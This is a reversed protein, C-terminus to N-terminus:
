VMQGVGVGLAERACYEAWDRGGNHFWIGSNRSNRYGEEQYTLNSWRAECRYQDTMMCPMWLRFVICGM